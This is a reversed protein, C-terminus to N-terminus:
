QKVVEVKVKATVEHHLKIEVEHLGLTKIPEPLHVKRKDVEFGKAKIETAIDEATVAGFMKDEEGVQRSITISLASIKAALAEHEGKEKAVKAAYKKKEQEVKAMNASTAEMVLNKPLLYNRAYGDSVDKVDGCKGLNKLDEKLIVKM